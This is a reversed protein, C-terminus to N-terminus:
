ADFDTSQLRWPQAPQALCQLFPVDKGLSRSLGAMIRQLLPSDGDGLYIDLPSRINMFCPSRENQVAILHDRHWYYLNHVAWLHGFGYATPNIHVGWAQLRGSGEAFLGYRLEQDQAIAVGLSIARASANAWSASSHCASNGTCHAVEYTAQVQVARLAFVQMSLAIDALRGMAGPKTEPSSWNGVVTTVRAALAGFTSAMDALLPRVIAQYFRPADGQAQFLQPLPLRAPQSTLNAVKDAELVQFLDAMADWGQLYAIGSAMVMSSPAPGSNM